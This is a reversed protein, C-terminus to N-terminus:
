ELASRHGSPPGGPILRSSGGPSSTPSPMTSGPKVHVVLGPDETAIPQLNEMAEAVSPGNKARRVAAKPVIFGKTDKPSRKQDVWEAIIEAEIQGDIQDLVMGRFHWFELWKKVFLMVAMAMLVAGFPNLTAVAMGAAFVVMPELFREVDFPTREGPIRNWIRFPEGASRSHWLVGKRELLYAHLKHVIALGVFIVSAISGMPTAEPGAIATMAVIAFQGGIITLLNLYRVGFRTHMVVEVPITGLWLVLYLLARAVKLFIALENIISQSTQRSQQYAQWVSAQEGQM